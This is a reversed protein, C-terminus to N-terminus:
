PAAVADLIADMLGGVIESRRMEYVPSFFIRHAVTERFVSQLDEPILYDRGHLWASAKAARLLMSM